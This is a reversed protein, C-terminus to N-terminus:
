QRCARSLLDHGLHHRRVRLFVADGQRLAECLHDGKELAVVLRVVVLADVLKPDLLDAAIRVLHHTAIPRPVSHILVGIRDFIVFRALDM